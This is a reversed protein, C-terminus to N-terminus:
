KSRVPELDRLQVAVISRDPWRVYAYQGFCVQRRGPGVVAVARGVARDPPMQEHYMVARNHNVPVYRVRTGERPCAKYSERHRLSKTKAM